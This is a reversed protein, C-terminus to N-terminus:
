IEIVRSVKPALGGAKVEVALLRYDGPWNNEAVWIDAAFSMQKLKKPTVYDLGSGQGARTRYKVEIFYIVDRRKAIIDIECVRRRWNTDLIEYGKASLYDAAAAEAARGLGTTSM